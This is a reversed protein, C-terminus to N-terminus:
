SAKVRARAWKARTRSAKSRPSLLSRIESSRLSTSMSSPSMVPPAMELWSVRLLMKLWKQMPFHNGILLVCCIECETTLASVRASKKNATVRSLFRHHGNKCRNEYRERVALSSLSESCQCPSLPIECHHAVM